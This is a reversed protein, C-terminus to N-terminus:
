VFPFSELDRLISPSISLKIFILANRPHGHSVRLIDQSLLLSIEEITCREFFLFFFKLDRLISPSISNYPNPCKKSVWSVGRLIRIKTVTLGCFNQLKEILLVFTVASPTTKTIYM